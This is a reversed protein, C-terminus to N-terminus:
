LKTSYTLINQELETPSKAILIGSYANM